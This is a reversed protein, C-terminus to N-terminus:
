FRNFLVTRLKLFLKFTIFCRLNLKLLFFLEKHLFFITYTTINYLFTNKFMKLM